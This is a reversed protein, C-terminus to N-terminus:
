AQGEKKPACRLFALALFGSFVAVFLSYSHGFAAYCAFNLACALVNALFTIWWIM